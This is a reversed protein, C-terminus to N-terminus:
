RRTEGASRVVEAVTVESNEALLIRELATWHRNWQGAADGPDGSAVADLMRGYSRRLRQYGAEYGDPDEYMRSDSVAETHSELISHLAEAVMALTTVGSARVLARHFGWAGRTLSRSRFADPLDRELVVRLAPIGIGGEESVARRVANDELARCATIVDSLPVKGVALLLSAPKAVIEPGPM